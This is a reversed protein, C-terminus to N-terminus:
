FEYPSDTYTKWDATSVPTAPATPQLTAPVTPDAKSTLQDTSAQAQFIAMAQSHQVRPSIGQNALGGLVLLITGTFFLPAFSKRMAAQETWRFIVQSLNIRLSHS